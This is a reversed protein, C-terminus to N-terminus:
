GRGRDACPYTDFPHNVLGWKGGDMTVTKLIEIDLKKEVSSIAKGKVSGEM